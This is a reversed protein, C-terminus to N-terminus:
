SKSKKAKEALEQNLKEMRLKQLKSSNLSKTLESIKKNLKSEMDSKDVKEQVLDQQIQDILYEKAKIIDRLNEPTDVDGNDSVDLDKRKRKSKPGLLKKEEGQKAPVISIFM